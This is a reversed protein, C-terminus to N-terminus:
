LFFLYYQLLLYAKYLNNHIQNYVNGGKKQANLGLDQVTQVKRWLVRYKATVQVPVSLFHEYLM